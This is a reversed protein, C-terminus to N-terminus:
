GEEQTASAVEETQKLEGKAGNGPKLQAELEAIKADKEAAVRILAINVAQTRVNPNDKMLQQALVILDEPTINITVEKAEKM